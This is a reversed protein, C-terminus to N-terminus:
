LMHEVTMRMTWFSDSVPVPSGDNVRRVVEIERPVAPEVPEPPVATQDALITKFFCAAASIKLFIKFIM